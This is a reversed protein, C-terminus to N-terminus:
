TGQNSILVSSRMSRFFPMIVEKRSTSGSGYFHTRSAARAETETRSV